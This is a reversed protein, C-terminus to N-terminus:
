ASQFDKPVRSNACYNKEFNDNKEFRWKITM